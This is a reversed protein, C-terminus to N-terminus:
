MIHKFSTIKTKRRSSVGKRESVRFRQDSSFKARLWELDYDSRILDTLGMNKRPKM